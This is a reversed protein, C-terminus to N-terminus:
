ADISAKKRKPHTYIAMPSKMEERVSLWSMAAAPVKPMSSSLMRQGPSKFKIGAAAAPERAPKRIRHVRTHKIM